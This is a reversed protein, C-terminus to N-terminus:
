HRHYPLFRGETIPAHCFRRKLSPAHCSRQKLSPLVPPPAGITKIVPKRSQRLRDYASDPSGSPAILSSHLIPPGGFACHPQQGKTPPAKMADAARLAAGHTRSPLRKLPVISQARARRGGIRSRRYFESSATAFGVHSDPRHPFARAPRQWM